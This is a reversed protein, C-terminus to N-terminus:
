HTLAVFHSHQVIEKGTLLLINFMPNMMGIEGEHSVVDSEGNEEFHVLDIVKSTRSRWGM